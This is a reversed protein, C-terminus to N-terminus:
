TDGDLTDTEQPAHLHEAPRREFLIRSMCFVNLGLVLSVSVTMIVTGATTLGVVGETAQALTVLPM